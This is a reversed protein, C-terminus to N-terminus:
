KVLLRVRQSVEKAMNDVSDEAYSIDLGAKHKNTVTIVEDRLNKLRLVLERGCGDEILQLKYSM